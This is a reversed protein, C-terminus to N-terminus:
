RGTLVNQTLLVAKHYSSSVPIATGDALRLQVPKGHEVARVKGFAVWHSRHVQLGAGDPMQALAAGFSHRILRSGFRTHLRLYHEEASIAQLDDLLIGAADCIEPHVAGADARPMPAPIAPAPAPAPHADSRRERYFPFGFKEMFLLNLVTWTLMGPVNILLFREAHQWFTKEGLAGSFHSLQPAALAIM